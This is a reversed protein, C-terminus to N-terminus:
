LRRKFKVLFGAQLIGPIPVMANKNIIIEPKSEKLADYWNAAKEVIMHLNFKEPFTDRRLLFHYGGHTEIIHFEINYEKFTSTLYLCIEEKKTDCDIDIFYKRLTSKQICNLLERHENLVFTYNPEKKHMLAATVEQVQRNMESQFQFYARIMSSPNINMYCVLSKEPIALGNRTTKHSLTAELRRITYTSLQEKSKAIERVFMETQGLSYYEREEKSLYKNRASLSCFYVEDKELEPLIDIFKTFEDRDVVLGM